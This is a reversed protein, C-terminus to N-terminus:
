RAVLHGVSYAMDGSLARLRIATVERVPPDVRKVYRALGGKGNNAPGVVIKRREVGIIELEYRDNNDVTLDIEKVTPRKPTAFELIHNEEFTLNGERDWPTTEPVLRSVEAIDHHIVRRTLRMALSKKPVFYFISMAVFAAALLPGLRRLPTARLRGSVAAYLTGMLIVAPFVHRFDTHHPAPIMARFAIMFAGFSALCLLAAGFRRLARRRAFLVAGLVLIANMALLDVNMWKAVVRNLEFATEADPTTNHTGFLSSKLLHNWFYKRGSTDKEAIAYPQALFTPLDLWLYNKPKNEVWQHKGIDCANGLIKHCIPSEKSRPTEKGHANFALAGAIIAGALLARRLYRIKDRSRFFRLGLVAAIAFAVPYASSKTIVGLATFLAALYLQRPREEQWYAVLFYVAIAMFACVLTDNHLRVSNHVSYPWFVILAAALRLENRTKLLRRATAIGFGTFVLTIVLSFIMVGSVPPALKTKECFAYVGAGLVYYLPPHHCILCHSAPPRLHNSVIYQIYRLQEGGDYNREGFETYGFYSLYLWLGGPVILITIWDFRARRLSLGTIAVLAVIYAVALVPRTLHARIAVVTFAGTLAVFAALLRTTTESHRLASVLKDRM